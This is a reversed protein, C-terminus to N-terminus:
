LAFRPARPMSPPEQSPDSIVSSRPDRLACRLDLFSSLNRSAADEGGRWGLLAPPDRGLFLSGRPRREVPAERNTEIVNVYIRDLIFRLDAGPIAGSEARRGQAIGVGLMHRLGFSLRMSTSKRSLSAAAKRTRRTPTRQGSGTRTTSSAAATASTRAGSATTGGATPGTTSAQTRLCRSANVNKLDFIM